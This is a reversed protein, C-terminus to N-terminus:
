VPEGQIAAEMCDMFAIHINRGYRMNVYLMGNTSLDFACEEYTPFFRGTVIDCDETNMANCVLLLAFFM